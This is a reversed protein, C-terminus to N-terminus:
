GNIEKWRSMLLERVVAVIEQARRQERGSMRWADIVQNTLIDIKVEGEARFVHVHPPEHDAPYIVVEYGNQRWVTPMCLM